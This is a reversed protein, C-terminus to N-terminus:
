EIKLRVWINLKEKQESFMDKAKKDLLNFETVIGVKVDDIKRGIEM